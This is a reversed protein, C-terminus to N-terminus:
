DVRRGDSIAWEGRARRSGACTCTPRSTSCRDTARRLLLEGHAPRHQDPGPVHRRALLREGRRAGHLLSQRTRDVKMGDPLGKCTRAEGVAHRRLVRPRQRAHRRAQVDFAMWVPKEPDSQAVYLTKEDPSFAIGNPRTMKDTLLTVKGDTSLAISAASTWSGRRTTRRGEAPRLASRHLLPRRQVQLGRRQPQQVAQGPLPRRAHHLQRGEGAPRHAPRRAPLPGAPGDSDLM